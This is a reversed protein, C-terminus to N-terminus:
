RNRELARLARGASENTPDLVLARRFSDIGRLTDGEQVHLIGLTVHIDGTEVGLAIAEELIALAAKGNGQKIFNRGRQVLYANLADGAFYLTQPDGPTIRLQKIFEELAQMRIGKEFYLRATVAHIRATFLEDLDPTSVSDAAAGFITRHPLSRAIGILNEMNETWTDSGFFRSEAYELIPHDDTNIDDGTKILSRIQEEGLLLRGLFGPAGDIRNQM